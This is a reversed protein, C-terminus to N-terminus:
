SNTTNFKLSCLYALRYLDFYLLNPKNSMLNKVIHKKRINILSSFLGALALSKLIHYYKMLKSYSISISRHSYLMYLTNIASESKKLYAQNTELGMHVAPAHIHQVRAKAMKLHYTFLIDLGYRNYTISESIKLFLSKRIAFCGLIISRYIDKKRQDVTKTEREHGYHWRLSQNEDDLSENYSIGGFVVDVDTSFCTIYDNLFSSTEPLTDSDVFLLWEYQALNALYKRNGISGMNKKQEIFKANTLTNINQNKINIEGFSGDDVCIIEFPVNLQLAQKELQEALPFTHYNYTPILISLM